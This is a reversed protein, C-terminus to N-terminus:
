ESAPVDASDDVGGGLEIEDSVDSIISLAANLEGILLDENLMAIVEDIDQAASQLLELLARTTDNLERGLVKVM